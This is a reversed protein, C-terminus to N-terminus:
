KLKNIRGIFMQVDNWSVTEVPQRPEVFRSPNSGMITVWQQQTVPYKSMWFGSKFLVKHQPSECEEHGVETEPSGMLFEGPPIWQLELIVDKNLKFVHSKM